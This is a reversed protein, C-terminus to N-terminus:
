NLRFPPKSFKDRYIRQYILALEFSVNTACDACLTRVTRTPTEYIKGLDVTDDKAQGCADCIRTM